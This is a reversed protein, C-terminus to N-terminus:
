DLEVALAKGDEDPGDADAWEEVKGQWCVQILLALTSFEARGFTGIKREVWRSEPMGRDWPWLAQVVPDSRQIVGAAEARALVAEVEGADWGWVLYFLGEAPRRKAELKRLRTELGRITLM